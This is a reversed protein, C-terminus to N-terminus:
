ASQTSGAWFMQTPTNPTDTAAGVLITSYVSNAEEGTWVNNITTPPTNVATLPQDAKYTISGAGSALNVGCGDPGVLVLQFALIPAIDADTIPGRLKVPLSNDLQEPPNQGVTYITRSDTTGNPETVTFTASSVRSSSDTGLSINLKWGTPVGAVSGTQLTKVDSWLNILDSGGTSIGNITSNAPWNEFQGNFDTAPSNATNVNYIFQQWGPIINSGVQSFANLQFSFGKSNGRNTSEYVLDQSIAIEASVGTLAKGGGYIWYNSNNGLGSEPVPVADQGSNGPLTNQQSWDSGDFSAYWLQQDDDSGKWMAYMKTSSFPAIAAGVSSGVAVLSGATAGPVQIKTQGGWAGNKFSAYYLGQDTYEGKWVAYLSGNFAALTPGISSMPPGPISPAATWQHGDYASFHLTEDNVGGRWGAYLKGDYEALSAGVLSKAGPIPQQPEWTSGNLWSWYVQDDGEKGKWAGYLVGNLVGLSPGVSSYVNPIMIQPAWSGGSFMAYFIRQDSDGHEGKWAAYMTSNSTAALSPGVGSNGPIHATETQWSTGGFEAYFLRNDGVEGKWAAYLNSGLLCLGQTISM